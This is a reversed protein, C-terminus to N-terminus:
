LKPRFTGQSRGISSWVVSPRSRSLPPVALLSRYGAQALIPRLQALVTSREDLMDPVQVPARTAAATGM